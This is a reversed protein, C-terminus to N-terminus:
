KQKSEGYEVSGSYNEYGGINEARYGMQRLFASAMGSRAGSFCYMFVRVSKDPIISEIYAQNGRGCLAADINVAGPVHGDNYEEPTRVDVLVANKIQRMDYLGDNIDLEPLDEYYGM